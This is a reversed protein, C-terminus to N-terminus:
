GRESSDAAIKLCEQKTMQGEYFLQRIKAARCLTESITEPSGHLLDGEAPCNDCFYRARCGVCKFESSAKIQSYGAFSEWIENFNNANVIKGHHRLRMCPCLRGRYDILFSNTAVNCSYVHEDFAVEDRILEDVRPAKSGQEVQRVHDDFENELVVALPVQLYQNAKNCKTTPIIEYSHVLEVGFQNAIARMADLESLTLTMVPTKLSFRINHKKMQECNHLVRALARESGTVKKYTEATAGYLTVDVLLPPYRSMLDLAKEDFRTGNTFVEVLFGKRKAYAYIDCFDDRLMAEGGTLTLFLIGQDFLIDILEIVREYPMEPESHSEDLYCHVCNLNCRSTLELLVSFPKRSEVWEKRKTENFNLLEYYFSERLEEM